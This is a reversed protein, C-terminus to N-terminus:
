SLNLARSVEIWSTGDWRFKYTDVAGVTATLPMTGNAVKSNIPKACTRSGTADQTLELNLEDDLFVGPTLTPTINGTLTATIAKGNKRDFTASGTVNGQAYITEPNIGVNNTGRITVGSPRTTTFSSGNYYFPVGGVSLTNDRFTLDQSTLATASYQDDIFFDRTVTPIGQNDYSRLGEIFGRKAAFVFNYKVTSTGLQGSNYATLNRLVLHNAKVDIGQWNTLEFSCDAIELDDCSLYRVSDNGLFSSAIIANPNGRKFTCGLVKNNKLSVKANAGIADWFIETPGQDYGLFNIGSAATLSFHDYDWTCGVFTTNYSQVTVSSNYFDCGIFKTMGFGDVANGCNAFHCGSLTVDHSGYNLFSFQAMKDRFTCNIFKANLGQALTVAEWQANSDSFICNKVTLNRPLLASSAGASVGWFLMSKAGDKQNKFHINELVVDQCCGLAIGYTAGVQNNMDITMDSIRISKWVNGGTADGSGLAIVSTEAQAQLITQNIGAGWLTLNSYSGITAGGVQATIKYTGPRIYTECSGNGIGANLAVDDNTGNGTYDNGISGAIGVVKKLHPLWRADYTNQSVVTLETGTTPDLRSAHLDSGTLQDHYTNAM